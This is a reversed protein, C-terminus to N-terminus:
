AAMAIRRCTSLPEDDDNIVCSLLVYFRLCSFCCALSGLMFYLTSPRCALYRWINSYLLENRLIRRDVQVVFRYSILTFRTQAM